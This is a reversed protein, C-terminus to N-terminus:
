STIPFDKKGLANLVKIVCLIMFIWAKYKLPKRMIVQCFSKFAVMPNGDKFHLYGFTFFMDSFRKKIDVIKCNEGNPGIVGWQDIAKKLIEYEYHIERPTRALSQQLIRYLVRKAKLKHIQTVRSTRLWYDYDEGNLFEPNFFGVQEVIERRFMVTSTLCICDLLLQCYIWGSEFSDIEQQFLPMDFEDPISFNGDQDANWFFWDCYVMGVDAHTDLYRVQESVKQPAWIDDSDCFCVYKGKAARIGNNRAEAVGQNAQWVVHIRDSYSNLVEQTGDSSGDNVVLIEIASYDQALVSDLTQRIFKEGNYVPIIVTVLSDAKM